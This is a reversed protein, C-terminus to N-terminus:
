RAFTGDLLGYTATLQAGLFLEGGDEAIQGALRLGSAQNIWYTFGISGGVYLSKDSGMLDDSSFEVTGTVDIAGLPDGHEGYTFRQMTLNAGAAYPSPAGNPAFLRYRAYGTGSLELKDDDLQLGYGVLALLQEIRGNEYAADPAPPRDLYGESFTLQADFGSPRVYLQTDRLVNLIEYTLGADPEGLLIGAERLIAVTAVLARYTTREGRLAWWTLELKKATAADIPRGLARAADLTRSLRHVRIQAGVDLVRGYGGGLALELDAALTTNKIDNGPNAGIDATYNFQMAGTVKGVGYVQGRYIRAEGDGDADVEAGRTDARGSPNIWGTVVHADADYGYALKEREVRHAYSGAVDADFDMRKTLTDYGFNATGGAFTVRDYAALTDDSMEPLAPLESAASGGGLLGGTVGGSPPTASGSGAAEASGSGASGSGLDGTGLAASGSGAGAEPHPAEASGGLKAIAKRALERQSKDRSPDAAIAQLTPIAGPDGLQGLGEIAIEGIIDFTEDTALKELAPVARKDKSQGLKKAADRRKDKWTSRDMDSPQNEILKILAPVDGAPQAHATGAAAAVLAIVVLARM